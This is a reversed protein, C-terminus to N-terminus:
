RDPLIIDFHQRLAAIFVADDALDHEQRQGHRTIVLRRDTISVRGDPTPRTCIRQRTFHSDPSTQQYHNMASFDHLEWADLTFRFRASWVDDPNLQMLVIGDGDADQRFANRTDCHIGDALRIPELFTSVDALWPDDLDVRLLLHDFAPGFSGDDRRVGASLFTISFGLSRLLAGFAGNVEYCYGGRRDGVIKAVIRTEDLVIERGFHIDLNEFPVAFMHARHLARLTEITATRPGDYGIRELYANTDIRSQATMAHAGGFAPMKTGRLRGCDQSVDIGVM